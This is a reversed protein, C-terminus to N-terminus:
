LMPGKKKEPKKKKLDRKKGQKLCNIMQQTFTQLLATYSLASLGLPDIEASLLNASQEFHQIQISAFQPEKFLCAKSQELAIKKLLTNLHGLSLPQDPHLTLAGIQRLQYHDVFNGYANHYAIFGQNKYPVLQTNIQQDLRKMEASFRLKKQQLSSKLEPRLKGLQQTIQQAIEIAALPNLWFHTESESLAQKSQQLLLSKHASSQLWKHETSALYPEFQPNIWIVLDADYLLKMDSPKLSFHHPSTSAPVLHEVHFSDDNLLDRAILALPKISTVIHLSHNKAFSPNSIFLFTSLFFVKYLYFFFSSSFRMFLVSVNFLISSTIRRPSGNFTKM